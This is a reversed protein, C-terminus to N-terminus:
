RQLANGGEGVIVFPAWVSPHANRLDRSEILALIARRLGEARGVGNEVSMAKVATTVLAVAANSDVAWHSVLIARAQAFFFARAIGSLAQEGPEEFTTREQQQRRAGGATNCASLIVWDADLRLSAIESAALYGDDDSSAKAPPTLLLGPEHSGSIEGELAGHTAFHVIRFNALAGSKSLEKLDTETARAGLRIDDLDAQLNRAVACLEDATEPLPSQELITGPEVLGDHTALPSLGRRLGRLGTTRSTASQACATRQKALSALERFTRGLQSSRQDGDLLPNGYGIMPRQAASPKGIQRLAKLSSVAPLVTLAHERILWATNRDVTDSDHKTVLVHLPLKTLEGSPVVLLQKGAILDEFDGLLSKYLAHARATQFPLAAGQPLTKGAPWGLAAACKAADEGFWAIADLGCRLASVERELGRVGLSSRSWRLGDRTVVWVFTGEEQRDHESTALTLVLAEDPALLKQADEVSIPQPRSFTVYEPYGTALRRDITEIEERIASIEDRIRVHSTDTREAQPMSQIQLWRQEAANWRDVLEQRDRVLAKLASDRGASRAAMKTLSDAAASNQSWQAAVFAEEAFKGTEPANSSALQHLLGVLTQFQASALGVERNAFTPQRAVASGGGTNRRALTIRTAHRLLDAAQAIEGDKIRLRALKVLVEAHRPHEPGLAHETISGSRRLLASAESTEGMDEAIDALTNLPRVLHIADSGFRKEHAKVATMALEKAEKLRGTMRYAGALEAKTTSIYYENTRGTKELRELAKLHSAVADEGRGLEAYIGGLDSMRLGIVLDDAGIKELINIARKIFPEAEAFRGQRMLLSGLNGIFAAYGNNEVGATKEAVEIARTVMAEAEAFRGQRGLLGGLLDLRYAMTEHDPGLMGEGIALNDRFLQEARPYYGLMQNFVALKARAKGTQEDYPGVAAELIEFAQQALPLAETFRLQQEYVESIGILTEAYNPHKPGVTKEVRNLLKRYERESDEFRDLYKYLKALDLLNLITQSHEPGLARERMALAEKVFPLAEARKDAEYLRRIRADLADRYKQSAALSNRGTQANSAAALPMSFLTAILIAALPNRLCTM